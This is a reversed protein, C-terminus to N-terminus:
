GSRESRERGGRPRYVAWGPREALGLREVDAANAVAMERRAPDRDLAAARLPVFLVDEQDVPAAPNDALVLRHGASIAPVRDIGAFLTRRRDIFAKWQASAVGGGGIAAYDPSTFVEASAVTYIAIYRRRVDNVAELRQATEIGPVSLLTRLHASYWQNWEAEQAPNTFRIEVMYIM